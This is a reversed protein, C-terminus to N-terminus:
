HLPAADPHRASNQLSGFGTLNRDFRRLRDLFDRPFCPHHFFTDLAVPVPMQVPDADTNPAGAAPNLSSRRFGFKDVDIIMIKNTRAQYYLEFDWPAFGQNWMQLWWRALEDCLQEVDVDEEPIQLISDTDGLWIPKRVDIKDMVYWEEPFDMHDALLPARLYDFNNNDVLTNLMLRHIRKQTFEDHGPANRRMKKRVFYGDSLPIIIGSAGFDIPDMPM